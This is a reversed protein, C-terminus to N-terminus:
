DTLIGPLRDLEEVTLYDDSGAKMWEVAQRTDDSGRIVIISMTESTVHCIPFISRTEWKQLTSSILVADPPRQEIHRVFQEYVCVQHFSAICRTKKFLQELHSLTESSEDLILIHLPYNVHRM